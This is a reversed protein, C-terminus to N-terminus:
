IRKALFKFAAESNKRSIIEKSLGVVRYCMVMQLELPLQTSIRFFRAAPTTSDVPNDVQLIGDSVFVVLAFVEAALEDVLGLEVGIVHRTEEPNEKFRELLTAVETNGEKKAVGIADAKEDGSEGLDMERGSVIWWKIIDIHGYQAVWFVNTFGYVDVENVKVRSDKLMERVRSTSGYHCFCSFTTGGDTDRVNVNIDPHALLVPIVASRERGFCAYHLLTWGSGDLSKNVNFVPDQRMMLESLKQADGNIIAAQM